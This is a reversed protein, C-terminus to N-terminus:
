LPEKLFFTDFYPVGFGLCVLVQLSRPTRHAPMTKLSTIHVRLRLQARNNGVRFSGKCARRSGSHGPGAIAPVVVNMRWSEHIRVAGISVFACVFLPGDSQGHTHM